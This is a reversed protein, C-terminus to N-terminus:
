KVVKYAGSEIMKDIDFRFYFLWPVNYRENAKKTLSVDPYIFGCLQLEKFLKKSMLLPEFSNFGVRVGQQTVVQICAGNDLILDDKGIHKEYRNIKMEIEM